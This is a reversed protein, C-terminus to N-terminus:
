IDLIYRSFACSAYRAKLLFAFVLQSIESSVNVGVLLEFLIERFVAM